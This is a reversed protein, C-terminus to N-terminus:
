QAETATPSPRGALERDLMLLGHPSDAVMCVQNFLTDATAEEEVQENVFWHLLVTAPRDRVEEAIGVLDDIRATIHQEHRLVAEIAAVPSQWESPPADLAQLRVAGGRDNLFDVIKLAHLLEEESQVRMWHAFGDLHVTTFYSAVALYLYFSYFEAQVQDNLAKEIRENM